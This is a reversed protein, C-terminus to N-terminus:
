RPEGEEMQARKMEECERDASEAERLLEAAKRRAHGSLIGLRVFHARRLAEVRQDREESTLVGDPDVERRFRETLNDQATSGHRAYSTLGGMQAILRREEPDNSAM